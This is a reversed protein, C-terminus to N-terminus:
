GCGAIELLSFAGSRSDRLFCRPDEPEARGFHHWHLGHLRLEGLQEVVGVAVDLKGDGILEEHHGM